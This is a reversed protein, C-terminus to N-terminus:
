DLTAQWRQRGRQLVVNPPRVSIVEVGFQSDGEAMSAIEGNISLLARQRDVRVFGMLEVASDNAGQAASAAGGERKPPVFLDIRDPFPAAYDVIKAADAGSTPATATPQDAIANEETRREATAAAAVAALPGKASTPAPAHQTESVAAIPRADHPASCGFLVGATVAAGLVTVCRPFPAVTHRKERLRSRCRRM